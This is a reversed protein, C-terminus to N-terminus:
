AHLPLPEWVFWVVYVMLVLPSSLGGVTGTVVVAWVVVADNVTVMVASGVAAIAVPVRVVAVVATFM